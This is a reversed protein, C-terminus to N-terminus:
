ESFQDEIAILSTEDLVSAFLRDLKRSAAADIEAARERVAVARQKQGSM